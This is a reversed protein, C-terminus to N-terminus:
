MCTPLVCCKKFVQEKPFSLVRVVKAFFMPDVALAWRLHWVWGCGGNRPVRHRRQDTSVGVRLEREPPGSAEESRYLYTCACM